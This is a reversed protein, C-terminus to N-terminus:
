RPKRVPPNRGRSPRFSALRTAPAASSNATGIGSSSRTRSDIHLPWLFLSSRFPSPRWRRSHGRFLGADSRRDSGDPASQRLAPAPRAGPAPPISRPGFAFGNSTTRTEASRPAKALASIACCKAMVTRQVFGAGIQGMGEPARAQAFGCLQSNATSPRLACAIKPEGSSRFNREDCSGTRRWRVWRHRRRRASSINRRRLRRLRRQRYQLESGREKM